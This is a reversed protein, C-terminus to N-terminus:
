CCINCIMEQKIVKKEPNKLLKIKNYVELQEDMNIIFELLEAIGITLREKGKKDLDLLIEYDLGEGILIYKRIMNVSKGTLIHTNATKKYVSNYIFLIMQIESLKNM